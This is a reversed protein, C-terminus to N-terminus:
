RTPGSPRHGGDVGGPTRSFRNAPRHRRLNERQHRAPAPPGPYRRPRHRGRGKRQSGATIVVLAADILDQYDGARVDVVPSLPAAYRMDVAVGAAREPARDVLVIERCTGGREILSLATAAGVAGAGVVGVKVLRRRRAIPM